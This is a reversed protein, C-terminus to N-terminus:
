KKAAEVPELGAVKAGNCNRAGFKIPIWPIPLDGGDDTGALVDYVAEFDIDGFDADGSANTGVPKPVALDPANDPHPLNDIVYRVNVPDGNAIRIVNRVGDPLVFSLPDLPLGTDLSYMDIDVSDTRISAVIQPLLDKTVTVPPTRTERFESLAPTTKKFEGHSGICGSPVFVQAAVAPDANPGSDLTGARLWQRPPFIERMDSVLAIDRLPDTEGPGPACPPGPNARIFQLDTPQVNTSFRFEMRERVPYWISFGKYTDDPPRSSSAQLDTFIVPFHAPIYYPTGGHLQSWRSLRRVIKPMVAYLPGANVFPPDPPDGPGIAIIGEFIIRLESM